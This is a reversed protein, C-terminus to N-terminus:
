RSSFEPCRLKATFGRLPANQFLQLLQTRAFHKIGRGQRKKILGGLGGQLLGSVARAESLRRKIVPYERRIVCHRQYFILKTHPRQFSEPKFATRSGGSRRSCNKMVDAGRLLARQLM